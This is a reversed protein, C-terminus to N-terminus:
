RAKREGKAEGKMRTPPVKRVALAPKLPASLGDFFIRMTNGFQKELSSAPDLAWMLVTGFLAHQFVRALELSPIEKRL